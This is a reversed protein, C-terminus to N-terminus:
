HQVPKGGAVRAKFTDLMSDLDHCFAHYRESIVPNTHVAPPIAERESVQPLRDNLQGPPETRPAPRSAAEERRQAIEQVLGSTRVNSTSRKANLYGVIRTIDDSIADRNDAM